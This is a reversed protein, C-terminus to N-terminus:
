SNSSPPCDSNGAGALGPRSPLRSRRLDLGLLTLPEQSLDFCVRDGLSVQFQRYPGDIYLRADEMKSLLTVTRPPAFVLQRLALRRDAVLYPERVLLQLEQSGFPLVTGGASRIAATSGAATGVWVGSSRHEEQQGEFEVIYRSTAAPIAHCFLAENLVRRACVVGNIRMRMRALTAKELRQELAAKLVSRLNARDASCFFGVSHGPSSNVGLVPTKGVYHSAALLTGDGGVAVVLLARSSDFPQGPGSVVTVDAGLADLASQAETLTEHHERDASQWRAVSVDGKELLAVARPDSRERVFQDLMSRKAVVVVEPRSM